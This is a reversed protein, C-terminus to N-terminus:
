LLHPAHILHAEFLDIVMWPGDAPRHVPTRNLLFAPRRIGM